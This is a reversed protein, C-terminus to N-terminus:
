QRLASKPADPIFRALHRGLELSILRYCLENCHPDRPLLHFPGADAHKTFYDILPVFVIKNRDAIERVRNEVAKRNYSARSVRSRKVIEEITPDWVEAADPNLYVIFRAGHSRVTKDMRVVIAEFLPWNLKQLASPNSYLEDSFGARLRLTPDGAITRFWLLLPYIARYTASWAYPGRIQKPFASNRRPLAELRLHGDHELRFVPKFIKDAPDSHVDLVTLDNNCIGYLVLDPKYQPLLRELRLLVQDASYGEVGGNIVEVERNVSRLHERLSADVTQDQSVSRGVVTSDGVILIRTLSHGRARKTTHPFIGDENTRFRHRDHVGDVIVDLNPKQVWGITDDPDWLATADGVGPDITLRLAIEVVLLGAALGFVISALAFLAGRM